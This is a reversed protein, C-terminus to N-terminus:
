GKTKLLFKNAAVATIETEAAAVSSLIGCSLTAAIAVATAVREITADAIEEM